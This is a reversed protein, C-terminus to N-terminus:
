KSNSDFVFTQRKGHISVNKLILRSIGPPLVPQYKRELGNESLRLGTYGFVFQQLFAGAGTIFNTNQNEPTEAVVQFPARLYPGALPLLLRGIAPRDALQAALIPYFETGMMAGQRHRQIQSMMMQIAQHTQWAPFSEDLPYWLLASDSSPLYMKEAVSRWAPHPNLHLSTAAAIALELNKKAVANTYPDNSVGIESEKVAVVHSIEYRGQRSDYNVRSVWFDATDRLVPWCQNRLWDRDGTALWYQWSALAVDGNVHNESSANQAAFRPTSEHGGPDAEWPYMAGQYGNKKANERAADLTRSRFAVIPEALDPHLVALAPLLFIDADWFIHGYYGASSLGMPGTSIGLDKRVSGLLYFLMSHITRQLSPDGDIIVGTDWLAHWARRSASLLAEWGSDGAAAAASNAAQAVDPTSGSNVFAAFKTFTYTEGAAAHLTLRVEALDARERTEIQPTGTWQVAVAEGVKVGTGPAQGLVSMLVRGALRRARGQSLDLRGPYWIAWQNTRAEGQLTRIQELPYRHPALWNQLPLRVVLAGSFRPVIIVRAAAVAARDRSVFQEVQVAISKDGDVWLYATRLVSDYMDLTQRYQEIGSFSVDANLWHSGNNIDFENWDAAAAIRPVDGATHNYVGALFSRSPVTGLPTTVLSISGNGLYAPTYPKPNHAEFVFLSDQAFVVSAAAAVLVLHRPAHAGGRTKM